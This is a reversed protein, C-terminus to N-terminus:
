RPCRASHDMEAHNSIITRIRAPDMVSAIRALMEDRFPAKVTDILVPENGSILYANYSTGRSTAYGHFDRLDWDIAGVWHVHESIPIASFSPSM